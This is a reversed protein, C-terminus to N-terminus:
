DHWLRHQVVAAPCLAALGRCLPPPMGSGGVLIRRMSPLSAVGAESAAALLDAVMTPCQLSPPCLTRLTPHAAPLHCRQAPAMCPLGPLLAGCAPPQVRRCHLRHRRAAAGRGPPRPRRFRPLFVHRAGAALMALASCLGGIHFLPAAHLYVDDASYGCQLASPTHTPKDLNLNAQRLGQNM